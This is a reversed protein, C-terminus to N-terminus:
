QVGKVWRRRWVITYVGVNLLLALLGLAVQARRTLGEPYLVPLLYRAIFDEQYAAGGARERLANELPTLPCYWGCIEVAVGWLLAPVHLWALKPWRMVLLGGLVVFLVFALHLLLIGDAALSTPVSV